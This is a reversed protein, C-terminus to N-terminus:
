PMVVTTRSAPRSGRRKPGRIVERMQRVLLDLNDDAFIAMHDAPVGIVQVPHTTWRAWGKLPDDLRTAAWHEIQESRILVLQGNFKDTPWYQHRARELAAWVKKLVTENLGGVRPADPLDLHNLRLQRLLRHRVNKFREALYHWKREGPRSLFNILHIGMRMPWPLPRPYGPAYTDFAIVKAVELGRRQMQLAMEFAMLGGVSYGALVYPGKPRIKLIEDLYRAAIVEVRDPPAESGDVGIAKMGYAPYDPGLLRSFKHFTFVHGGAGAILFLPPQTGAENLPVVTGGGLELKSQIVGALDRVTPARFLMELPIKHGLKTEIRSVLQAATLSHGGLDEFRATVSVPRANLVEEWLGQLAKEADTAPPEYGAAAVAAPADPVPLAARDVKGNATIPLAELFVFAAPVMYEPLGQRVHNALVSAEVRAKRVVYAALSVNGSDDRFPKIVAERVAPHQALVAEIEGTEVRFGRVKVQHDIRGLFEINGDPCYRALDGTKYLRGGPRFPDPIFREATLDPRNLYGDALCLGGLHLEGPVGVPVPQLKADLIHYRANRIPKGYPISAWAPDVETVPFWNSWIAAETAGGLAMVRANPFAGRVEDPLTVPIWDGSLMVLKLSSTPAAHGFFPVLQQLAAPASDWMTIPETRLVEALRAPDKLEHEDAIRLCGGAGLVGFIDYVSLDFSLSTVFLLRDKPGVGFTRNVWDITNVAARHRLVVGKPKGTSGSTYIVYAIADPTHTREPPTGPLAALEAELRDLNVVRKPDNPFRDLLAWQTLVLAAKTDDLMFALRDRPYAPDLPVYAAGAKTVALVAAVMDASRKLCVGVLHGPKVGRAQLYRALRNSRDDLQRYTITKDGDVLAPAYPTEIARRAFADPLCDDAPYDGDTQNWEFLIRRREAPPLLPLDSLRATPNKIAADLVTQFYGVLRAMHDADLLDTNFEAWGWLGGSPGDELVMRLDFMATGNHVPIVELQLQAFRDPVLTVNQYYFATQFFPHRGPDRPPRLEEILAELSVNPHDLADLRTRRVRELLERFTPDGALDTRLVLTNVFLGVLPEIERRTRNAVPTGLLVTDLGTYRH